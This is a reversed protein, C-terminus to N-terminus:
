PNAKVFLCHCEGFVQVEFSCQQSNGATDWAVCTVQTTGVAFTNGNPDCDVIVEDGSNDDRNISYWIQTTASRWDTSGM